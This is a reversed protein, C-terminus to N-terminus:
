VRTTLQAIEFALHDTDGRRDDGGRADGDADPERHRGLGRHGNDIVEALVALRPAAPEAHADLLPSVIDGVAEIDLRRAACKHGADVFLPRRLGRSDFGAVDDDLEVALVDLLHLVQRTDDGMRRDALIDIDGDNAFALFLAADALEATELVALLL